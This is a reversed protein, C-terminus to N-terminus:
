NRANLFPALAAAVEKRVERLPRVSRELKLVLRRVQRDLSRGRRSDVLLALFTVVVAREEFGRQVLRHLAGRVEFPIGSVQALGDIGAADDHQEVAEIFRCLDAADIGEHDSAPSAGAGPRVAKLFRSFKNRSAPPSSSARPPPASPRAAAPPAPPDGLFEGTLNLDAGLSRMRLTVSGVGGWGAALMQPVKRLAPLEGAQENAQAVVLLWNTWPSLLQYREALAAAKAELSPREASAAADLAIGLEFLERAALLRAVTSPGEEASEAAPPMAAREIVRQGDPLTLTFRAEGESLTHFRAFLIATDGGFVPEDAGFDATAPAPWDVALRAGGADIRRFHRVIREAMDERPAVLECAGGSVGALERLLGEAVASGVGVTFLRHRSVKAARVVSHTGALEGDTLLILTPTGGSRVPISYAAQLAAGMETGGMDAMAADLERKAAAITADDGAVMTPFLVRHQSGFLVITFRDQPRLRELIRAVAVRAQGISDGQMSGSCDLVIKLDRPPAEAAAPLQPHLIALCAEGGGADAARLIATRPANEARIDLVFDRDMLMRGGRLRIVTRGDGRGIEVEHSPSAFRAGALLGSIEVELSADNDTLLSAEPVQHPELAWSGYRPAITTPHTFRLQDRQWRLVLAYRFRVRAEAGPLLNGVNMVYLGPGPREIMVAADGAVIAKEYAQEAEKRAVVRGSLTREGLRVSVDLLVAEVPLPFSYVAEIPVAEDNRYTQVVEVEALLDRLAARVAVTQLPVPAGEASRLVAASAAVTM